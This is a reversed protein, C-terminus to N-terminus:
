FRRRDVPQAVPGWVAVSQSKAYTAAAILIITARDTRKATLLPTDAGATHM